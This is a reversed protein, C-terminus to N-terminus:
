GAEGHRERFKAQWAERKRTLEDIPDPGDAHEVDLSQRALPSLGLQRAVDVMQKAAAAIVRCAAHEKHLGNAVYTTGDQRVRATAEKWSVVAECFIALLREDLPTLLGLDALESALRRWETKAEESLFSPCRASSASPRPTAGISRHGANGELGKVGEPKRRM